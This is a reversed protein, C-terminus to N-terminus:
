PDTPLNHQIPLVRRDTGQHVHHKLVRQYPARRHCLGSRKRCRGIPIVRRRGRRRKWMLVVWEINLDITHFRRDLHGDTRIM